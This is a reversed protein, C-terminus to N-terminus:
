EKVIGLYIYIFPPQPVYQMIVPRTIVMHMIFLEGKKLYFLESNDIYSCDGSQSYPMLQRCRNGLSGCAM